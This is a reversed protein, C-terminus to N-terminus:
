FGEETKLMKEDIQITANEKLRNLWREYTEAQRETVLATKIEDKADEAALRSQARTRLWQFIHFGDQSHVVPSYLNSSSLTFIAAEIEPPMEGKEVFGLDGENVRDPSISHRRVLDKMDAGRELLNLLADADSKSALTLNRVRVAKGHGLEKKHAKFYANTERKTIPIRNLGEQEILRKQLLLFHMREKWEKKTLNNAALQQDFNAEPYPTLAEETTTELEEKSIQLGKRNAEQTMLEETILQNIVIAKITQRNDEGQPSLSGYKKLFTQYRAQFKSLPIKQNNVVAITEDEPVLAVKTKEEPNCGGLYLLSLGLSLSFLLTTKKKL